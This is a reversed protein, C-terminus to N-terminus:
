WGEHERCMFRVKALNEPTAGVQGRQATIRGDDERLEVYLPLSATEAGATDVWGCIDLGEEGPAIRATLSHVHVGAGGTMQRAAKRVADKEGAGIGGGGTDTAGAIAVGGAGPGPGGGCGGLAAAIIMVGAALAKIRSDRM